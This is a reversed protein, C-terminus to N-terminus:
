RSASRGARNVSRLLNTEEFYRDIWCTDADVVSIVSQGVNAYDGLQTLLNTVYDKLPSRATARKLKM